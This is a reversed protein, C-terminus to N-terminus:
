AYRAPATRRRRTGRRRQRGDRRAARSMTRTSSVELVRAQHNLLSEARKPLTIDRAVVSAGVVRGSEDPMPAITM